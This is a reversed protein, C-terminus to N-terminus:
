RFNYHKRVKKKIDWTCSLNRPFTVFDGKGFSVTKGDETEVAVEGELIYCEETDDYHWKFKSVDKEWVPWVSVGLKELVDKSLKQVKIEM